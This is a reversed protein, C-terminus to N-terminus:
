PGDVAEKSVSQLAEILTKLNEEPHLMLCFSMHANNEDTIEVDVSGSRLMRAKVTVKGWIYTSSNM